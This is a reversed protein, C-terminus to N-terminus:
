RNVENQRYRSCSVICDSTRPTFKPFINLASPLHNYQVTSLSGEAM